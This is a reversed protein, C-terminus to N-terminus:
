IIKNISVPWNREKSVLVLQNNIEILTNLLSTFVEFPQLLGFILYEICIANKKPLLERCIVKPIVLGNYELLYKYVRKDDGNLVLFHSSILVRNVNLDKIIGFRLYKKDEFILEFNIVEINKDVVNKNFKKIGSNILFQEISINEVNQTNGNDAINTYINKVHTLIEDSKQSLNKFSEQTSFYHQNDQTNKQNRGKARIFYYMLLIISGSFLVVIVGTIFFVLLSM